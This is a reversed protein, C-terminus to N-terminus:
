FPLRSVSSKSKSAGIPVMTYLQHCPYATVLLFVGIVLTFSGFMCILDYRIDKFKSLSRFYDQQNSSLTNWKAKSDASNNELGTGLIVCGCITVGLGYVFCIIRWYKLLDRLGNSILNYNIASFMLHTLTLVFYLISMWEAVEVDDTM